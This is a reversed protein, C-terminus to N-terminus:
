KSLGVIVAFKTTIEGVEAGSYPDKAIVRAFLVQSGVRQQGSTLLNWTQVSSQDALQNYNYTTILTSPDNAKTSDKSVYGIHELTTVLTGDLAYIQITCRPPLRTFYLLANDTTTQGLQTVIYPNPVVQVQALISDVYNNSDAFSAASGGPTIIKFQAGPFPLNRMMGTFSLTIKDGTQFDNTHPDTHDVTGSTGAISDGLDTVDSIEPANFIIEAGGVSLKHVVLHYPQGAGGATDINGAAGMPFYFSDITAGGVGQPNFTPGSHQTSFNSADTYHYAEMRYWGPNPVYMTDPDTYTPAQTGISTAGTSSYFHYDQEKTMDTATDKVQQLIAMPCNTLSVTIPMVSPYITSGDSLVIADPGPTILNGFTVDYSTQGLAGLFSPRTAGEGIPLNLISDPPLNYISQNQYGDSGNNTRISLRLINPDGHNSSAPVVASLRYWTNLQELNVNTLVGFAQDITQNPAFTNENTTFQTAFVSDPSLSGDVHYVITGGGTTSLPFYYASTSNAPSNLNKYTNQIGNKNDTVDVYFLLPSQDLLPSEAYETWRPQFSVNVTDNTFLKAFIGTDLIDLGVNQVGGSDPNIVGSGALCNDNIGLASDGSFPVLYVPKNPIGTVFNKPPVIATFLPGVQNISDYENFAVVYYYYTVNNYLNGSGSTPLVGTHNDDGVDLYSHPIPNPITNTRTYHFHNFHGKSDFVSDTKFNYLQWTGLMIDPNTGTPRITSDHDSRTTRWLQYGLFALSTDKAQAPSAQINHVSREATSDWTVLVAQDLATTTVNPINPPAPSVFHNLFYSWTTDSKGTSDTFSSLYSSDVEGFVQHAFDSLLLVAGFNDKYSTTNAQAITIAVTTEVSKGPPLTFPGTAMLLRQDQYVGNWGAKTGSSVFDYRLDSTSPDNLIIWDQFTTLGLQNQRFLSNPGGYGGLGVSDSNAIINGNADIVPSELFSFGIWGYQQGNPPTTFDRWQVGMNLKTPDSRYPERLQAVYSPTAPIIDFVLSDSVYSNADNAAGGVAADLDPDYAPAMWCDLLSDASSNTVKHREFIMDRYRGFSWSYIEEQVDIGFPYGTQPIFEPNDTTPNDTYFNVIDEESTIVPKAPNGNKTLTKNNRNGVESIYDGFYFNHNITKTASTDWLPWNYFPSNQVTSSGPLYEGSLPDYRPGVYSIYKNNLNAGDTGVALGAQSNEGEIFWGAGSNPNYGIDCLQHRKGEIEKKCAFWIGGGFIYSNGSGRPWFCGEDEGQGAYFNVGRNSYYFEINSYVNLQRLFTQVQIGSSKGKSTPRAQADQLIPSVLIVMVVAIFAASAFSRLRAVRLQRTFGLSISANM